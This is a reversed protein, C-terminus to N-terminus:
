RRGRHVARRHAQCRLAFGHKRRHQVVKMKGQADRGPCDVYVCGLPLSEDIKRGWATISM